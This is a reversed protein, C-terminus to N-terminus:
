RGICQPSDYDLFPSDREEGVLIIGPHAPCPWLSPPMRSQHSRPVCQPPIQFRRHASAGQWLSVRWTPYRLTSIINLWKFGTSTDHHVMLCWLIPYSHIPYLTPYLDEYGKKINEMNRGHNKELSKIWKSWAPWFTWTRVRSSSWSEGRSTLHRRDVQVARGLPAFASHWCKSLASDAAMVM